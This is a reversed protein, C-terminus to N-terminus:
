THPAQMPIQRLLADMEEVCRDTTTGAPRLAALQRDPDAAIPRAVVFIYGHEARHTVLREIDARHARGRYCLERVVDRAERDMGGHGFDERQADFRADLRQREKARQALTGGAALPREISQGLM